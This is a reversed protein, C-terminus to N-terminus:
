RYNIQADRYDKINFYLNYLHVFLIYSVYNDTIKHELIRRDLINKMDLLINKILINM